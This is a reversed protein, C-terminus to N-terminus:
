RQVPAIGCGARNDHGSLLGTVLKLRSQLARDGLVGSAVAIGGRRPREAVGGAITGMVTEVDASLTAAAVPDSTTRQM